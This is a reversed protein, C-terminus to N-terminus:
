KRSWQRVVPEPWVPVAAPPDQLAQDLLPEIQIEKWGTRTVVLGLNAMNLVRRKVRDRDAWDGQFHGTRYRESGGHHEIVFLANGDGDSVVFDSRKSNFTALVQRNYGDEEDLFGGMGVQVFVELGKARAWTQAIRLVKLEEDNVLRVCTIVKDSESAAAELTELQKRASAMARGTPSGEPRFANAPSAIPELAQNQRNRVHEAIERRASALQDNVQDMHKLAHNAQRLDSAMEASSRRASRWRWLAWLVLAALSLAVVGLGLLALHARVLRATLTKERVASAAAAIKASALAAEARKLKKASSRAAARHRAILRRPQPKVSQSSPQLAVSTAEPSQAHSGLPFGTMLSFVCLAVCPLLKVM